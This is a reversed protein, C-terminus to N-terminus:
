RKASLWQKGLKRDYITMGGKEIMSLVGVSETRESLRFFESSHVRSVETREASSQTTTVEKLVYRVSREPYWVNRERWGDAVDIMCSEMYNNPKPKYPLRVRM